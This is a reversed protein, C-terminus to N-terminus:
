RRPPQNARDLLATLARAAAAERGALAHAHVVNALVMPEDTLPPRRELEGVAKEYDRM